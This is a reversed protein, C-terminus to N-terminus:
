PSEALQLQSIRSLALSRGPLNFAVLKRYLKVAEAAEGGEELLDGLSFITRSLWYRGVSTLAAANESDFLYRSAVLGYVTKASAFDENRLLISGWKYGAEIQVEVPLDPRDVLRELIATAEVLQDGSDQALAAICDARSLEAAYRLRHTPFSNILNEYVLQAGAFDNMLRLLDGQKLGSYYVLDSDPHEQVLRDLLVVAEGYSDPGQRQCHLAAEFLAQPVLDSDPYDAAFDKLIQQAARFDGVSAHYASETFYTRKAAILDSFDARIVAIVDFASEADELAILTKAQLLLLESKLRSSEVPGLADEPLSDIRALLVELKEAIGSSDGLQLSLHAELWRLRLDLAVPVSSTDRGVLSRLRELAQDAQGNSQLALALSWEARWRDADSMQGAFDAQDINELAAEVRGSKIQSIVLRLLVNGVESLPKASSHASVYFDVANAYDRNLFYCDGILRNLQAVKQPDTSQERLGLLYDAAVRYRPPNRQLAAYALLRYVSNIESLGPFQELLYRADAEALATMEPNALALQCRMYYLQAILPHPEPRSIIENLMAMLDAEREPVSGLLQLAIVTAESDIGARVLEKLSAWGASSDLGLILGKLLLLSAREDISYGAGVNALESELVRIAEADKGMGHLLVVYERLFPFAASQGSLSEFKERIEVLLNEDTPSHLLKQRMVLSSFLASQFSSAASKEAQQFFSEAEKPKDGADALVGKLLYYWPLDLPSLADPDVGALEARITDYGRDPAKGYAISAQYLGRRAPAELNPSNSLIESARDYESQAILAAVYHLTIDARDGNPLSPDEYLSSFIDTATASLGSRLAARGAEIKWDYKLAAVEDTVYAADSTLPAAM